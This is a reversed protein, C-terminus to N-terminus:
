STNDNTSVKWPLFSQWHAPVQGAAQACAHFYDEFWRHPNLQHLRLTQMISFLISTLAASWHSGSGFYNKRGVVAGRLAREAANNDVDVYSHEVFVTLGQWHNVLSKLVAQQVAPLTTQQLQADCLQKMHGLHQRLASDAQQFLLPHHGAHQRQHYLQYLTAIHQVWQQAWPRHQPWSAAVKLFDRRVHAWCFSLVVAVSKALAKYASYRDVSLIGQTQDGLHSEIVAASRSPELLYVVASSSCVVWLYWRSNAKGELPEFVEWRTEDAHWYSESQQRQLLAEYCPLLLLALRGLGDTLTAASLPLGYAELQLLLRHLPQAYGYKGMLLYVWLSIGIKSKPILKEAVPACPFLATQPCQCTKQYRQRKLRRRYAQVKIELVESDETGSISSFPCGCHACHQEDPPLVLVEEVMPLEPYHRRAPGRNNPQQGRQRQPKDVPLSQAESHAVHESKRGFLEKERQKLRAKLGELEQRLSAERELARQHFSRAQALEVERERLRIVAARYSQQWFSPCLHQWEFPM